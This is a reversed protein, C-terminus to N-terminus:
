ESSSDTPSPPMTGLIDVIVCLADEGTAQDAPIVIALRSGVRQDVLATQLGPMAEPLSFMQPAGEAWTSALRTGDSWIMTEYQAVVYDGSRVQVGSGAVLVQTIVEDPPPGEAHSVIPGYDTLEVTLPGSAEAVEQGNAVTFLIDVVNLETAGDELPRAVVMRTGETEGTVLQALSAGLSESDAEGMLLNPEGSPSLNEGTVADFSTIALLVPSGQEIVRGDGVIQVRAASQEVELPSELTLVPAAGHRGAVQAADLPEGLVLSPLDRTGSVLWAGVVLVCALAVTLVVALVVRWERVWWPVSVTRTAARRGKMPLRVPPLAATQEASTNERISRRTPIERRAEFHSISHVAGTEAEAEAARGHISRRSPLPEQSM